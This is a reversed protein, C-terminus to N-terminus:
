SRPLHRMVIWDHFEMPAVETLFQRAEPLLELSLGARRAMCRAEAFDFYSVSPYVWSTDHSAEVPFGIGDSFRISAMGIGSIPRLVHAMVEFYQMLQWDAAHSLISHSWSRDFKLHPVEPRPDFDERAVFRPVKEAVTAQMPENDQISANHLRENPEVCVYNGKDLFKAYQYGAHFAGCGIELVKHGPQVDISRRALELQRRGSVQAANGVYKNAAAVGANSVGQDGGAWKRDDLVQDISSYMIKWLPSSAGELQKWWSFDHCKPQNKRPVKYYFTLNKRMKRPGPNPFAVSKGACYGYEGNNPDDLTKGSFDRDVSCCGSFGEYLRDEQYAFPYGEPCDPHGLKKSVSSPSGSKKKTRVGFDTSRVIEHAAGSNTSSFVVAIWLAAVIWLGLLAITWHRLM